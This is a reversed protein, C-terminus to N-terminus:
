DGEVIYENFYEESILELYAVDEQPYQRVLSARIHAMLILDNEAESVQSDKWGGIMEDTLNAKLWEKIERTTEQEKPVLEKIRGAKVLASIGMVFFVAFMVAICIFVVINYRIPLVNLKCLLLYILGAVGFLIFTIGSFKLDKYQEEKKVYEKAPTYLLDKPDEMEDGSVLNDVGETDFPSGATKEDEEADWDYEELEGSRNERSKDEWSNYEKSNYERSNYEMSDMENGLGTQADHSAKEREEEVAMLFGGFLKEAKKEMGAPVTVTYIGSEENYRQRAGSIKSYELYEVFRQAMPEDKLSCIEAVDFDEASGAELPTGCDACVMIGDQYETKCKPCWM